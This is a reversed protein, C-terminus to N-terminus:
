SVMAFLLIMGAGTVVVPAWMALKELPNRSMSWRKRNAPMYIAECLDSPLQDVTDRPEYRKFTDVHKEVFYLWKGCWAALIQQCGAPIKDERMQVYIVGGEELSRFLLANAKKAENVKIFAPPEPPVSKAVPPEVKVKSIKRYMVLFGLTILVAFIFLVISIVVVSNV